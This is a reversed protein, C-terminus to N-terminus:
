STAGIGERCSQRRCDWTRLDDMRVDGSSADATFTLRATPSVKERHGCPAGDGQAARLRKSARDSLATMVVAGFILSAGLLGAAPTQEGLLLFAGLAGFVSEMSVLIAAVPASVHRQAVSTLTCAAATSFVGLFLLERWAAAVGSLTPAECALALPLMLAATLGFQVASTAMARGYRLVHQGLAVMWGAYFLASVLCALDGPNIAFGAATAGSMLYAGFVTVLGAFGVRWGPRQRLIMWALLATMVTCTNVLFSVNIVTTWRYAVQQTMLAAAFLASVGLASSWWGKSPRGGGELRCLPVIVALGLLCRAVLATFPGVHDLLTKNAVNGAGWCLAALLLMGVAM